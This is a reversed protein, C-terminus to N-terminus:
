PPEAAALSDFGYFAVHVGPRSRNWCRWARRAGSERRAWPLHDTEYWHDFRAREAEPVEARVAFLVSAMSGGKGTLGRYQHRRDHLRDEARGPLAPGQRRRPPRADAAGRVLAPQALHPRCPQGREPDCGRHQDAVLRQDRHDPLRPRGDSGEKENRPHQEALSAFRSRWRM